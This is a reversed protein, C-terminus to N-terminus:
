DFVYKKQIWYETKYGKYLASEWISQKLAKLVSELCGKESTTNKIVRYASMKGLTDIKVDVLLEGACGITNNPIVEFVQSPMIYLSHIENEGAEPMEAAESIVKIKNELIVDETFEPEDAPVPFVPRAPQPPRSQQRTIPIEIIKFPAPNHFANYTSENDSKQFFYFLFIFILLSTILSILLRNQYNISNM